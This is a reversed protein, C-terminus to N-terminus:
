KIELEMVPTVGREKWFADIYDYLEAKEKFNYRQGDITPHPSVEEILVYFTNPQPNVLIGAQKSMTLIKDDFEKVDKFGKFDKINDM